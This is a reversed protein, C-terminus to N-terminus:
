IITSQGVFYFTTITGLLGIILFIWCMVSLITGYPQLDPGVIPIVLLIEIICIFLWMFLTVICAGIAIQKNAM